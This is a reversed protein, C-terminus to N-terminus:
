QRKAQAHSSFEGQAKKYYWRRRNAKAQKEGNWNKVICLTQKLSYEFCPDVQLKNQDSPVDGRVSGM